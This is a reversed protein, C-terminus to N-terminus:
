NRRGDTRLPAGLIVALLFLYSLLSFIVDNIRECKFIYGDSIGRGSM